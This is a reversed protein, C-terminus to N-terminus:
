HGRSLRTGQRAVIHLKRAYFHSLFKRASIDQFEEIGTLKAVVILHHSPHEVLTSIHEARFFIDPELELECM